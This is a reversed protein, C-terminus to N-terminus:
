ADLEAGQSRRELRLWIGRKSVTLFTLPSVEIKGAGSKGEAHLVRHKQLITALAAKTQLLGFRQGPCMRPGAGFGLFKCGM